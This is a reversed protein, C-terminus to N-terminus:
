DKVFQLGLEKAKVADIVTKCNPCVPYIPNIMHGCARCNSMEFSKFDQMWAKQLGLKEAALRADVSISLPNGNTRSWMIDAQRVLEAFWNKQKLRAEALMTEFTKGDKDTYALVQKVTTVGPIFFLGPMKDGMNCAQLGVCYDKIVSEAIQISSTQIELMPQGEELEKWWSGPEILLTSFGTDGAAPIVFTGPFITRKVERVEKPLVSVIMCRDLPNVPLRSLQQSQQFAGFGRSVESM